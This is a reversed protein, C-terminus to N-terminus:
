FDIPCPVGAGTEGNYDRSPTREFADPRPYVFLRLLGYTTPLLCFM